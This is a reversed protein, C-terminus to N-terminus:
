LLQETTLSVRGLTKRLAVKVSPVMREYFGGGWVVCWAAREVIYNWKISHASYFNKVDAHNLVKWMQQLELEARKFTRANDSIVMSCLGRRAVFRRFALLFTDTTMSGVLELHISRTVACTILLIYQKADNDKIFLLGAFDLGVVSFPPSETVRVDPLPATVQSGPNSNFRKCTICKKLLSKITQPAKLIWYKERVQVLTHSVGSHFVRKHSWFIEANSLEEAALPDKVIDKRRLANVFRFIYATIRLLKLLSSCKDPEIIREHTITLNGILSSKLEVTESDMSEFGELKPWLTESDKLWEPGHWWKESNILEKSILGRTLLDAPNQKGSCHRWSAPDTNEQIESIRNSVFPKFKSASGKIYLPNKRDGSDFLFRAMVKNCGNIVQVEAMQLLSGYNKPSYSPNLASSMVIEKVQTETEPKKVNGVEPIEISNNLLPPKTKTKPCFLSNHQLSQGTECPTIKVKCQSILHRYTM